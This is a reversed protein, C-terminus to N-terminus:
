NGHNEKRVIAGSYVCPMVVTAIQNGTEEDVKATLAATEDTEINRWTLEIEGTGPFYCATIEHTAEM